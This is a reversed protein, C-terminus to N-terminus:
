MKIGRKTLEQQLAQLKNGSRSIANRIEGAVKPPLSALVNSVIQEVQSMQSGVTAKQQTAKAKEASAQKAAPTEEREESDLEDRLDAFEQQLRM